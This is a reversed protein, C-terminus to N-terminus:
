DEQTAMHTEYAACEAPTKFFMSPVFIGDHVGKRSNLADLWNYRLYRVFAQSARLDGLAKDKNKVCIRYLFNAPEHLDVEEPSKTKWAALVSACRFERHKHLMVTSDAVRKQVHPTLGLYLELKGTRDPSRRDVFWRPDVITTLLKATDPDSLTPIFQAAKRVPHIQFYAKAPEDFVFNTRLMRALMAYTPYDHVSLTHWGGSASSIDVARMRRLVAVPDTLEAQSHLVNLGAVEVAHVERKHRRLYLATILEANQPLGLIRVTVGMGSIVASNLFADGILESNIPPGIGVSYWVHGNEATHLKIIQEDPVPAM